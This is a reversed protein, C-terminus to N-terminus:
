LNANAPVDSPHQTRDMEPEAPPRGSQSTTATDFCLIPERSGLRRARVVAATVAGATSHRRHAVLICRDAASVLLSTLPSDIPPADVITVLGHRGSETLLAGIGHGTLDRERPAATGAPVLLVHDAIRRINLPQTPNALFESLGPERVRATPVASILVTDVGTGGFSEALARAVATWRDRSGASVIVVSQLGAGVGSAELEVRLRHLDAAENSDVEVVEVGLPALEEASWVQGRLAYIGLVLGIGLLAGSIAGLIAAAVASFPTSTQKVAVAGITVSPNVAKAAAIAQSVASSTVHRHGSRAQIASLAKSQATTFQSTWRRQLRKLYNTIAGEAATQTRGSALVLVTTKTNSVLSVGTPARLYDTGIAAASPSQELVLRKLGHPARRVKVPKHSVVASAQYSAHHRSAILYGVAGVMVAVVAVAWARRVLERM